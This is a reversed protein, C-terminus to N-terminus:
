VNLKTNNLTSRMFKCLDVNIKLPFDVVIQEYTASRLHSILDVPSDKTQILNCQVNVIM